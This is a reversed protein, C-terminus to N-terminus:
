IDIAIGNVEAGSDAPILIYKRGDIVRTKILASYQPDIQIKVSDTVIEYKRSNIINDPSLTGSDGFKERCEEIFAAKKEETVGGKELIDAVDEYTLELNDPDNSEKHLTIRNRLEEHVTQMVDLTCESKLTERVASGFTERQVAAPMPVETRFVADIFDKHSGTTNRTYFLANYINSARDDFAPFMFGIEPNAVIQSLSLNHFRSEEKSYSLVPKITKVPCICCLIYTFAQDSEAAEDNMDKRPVDYTDCALLILYNTDGPDFSDVVCRYFSDLLLPDALRTRRLASLLRHEDSDAVQKTSFSIDMLNRGLGGSLTKKLLGTYKEEEEGSLTAVSEDFKSIIEKGTNVYCGYIRQIASHEPRIRRRIESVEKKNM